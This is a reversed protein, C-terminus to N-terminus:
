TSVALIQPQIEQQRSSVHSWESGQCTWRKWRYFAILFFNSSRSSLTKRLDVSTLYYLAWLKSGHPSKLLLSGLASYELHYAQMLEIIRISINYTIAQMLETKMVAISFACLSETFIGSTACRAFLVALIQVWATGRSDTGLNQEQSFLALSSVHFCFLSFTRPYM